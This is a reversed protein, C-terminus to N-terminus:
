RESNKLSIFNTMGRRKREILERSELKDLIRTIKVRSFGTKEVLESQYIGNSEFIIKFVLDEEKGLGTSKFPKKTKEMKSPKSKTIFYVGFAVLVFSVFFLIMAEIPVHHVYPCFDFEVETSYSCAIDNINMLQTTLAFSMSFVVFALVIM